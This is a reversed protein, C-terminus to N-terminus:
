TRKSDKDENDALRKLVETHKKNIKECSRFIADYNKEYQERDVSRYRDGKGASGDRKRAKLWPKDKSM